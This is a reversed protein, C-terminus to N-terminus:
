RGGPPSRRVSLFFFCFIVDGGSMQGCACLLAHIVWGCCSATSVQHDRMAREDGGSSELRKDRFRSLEVRGAEARSHGARPPNPEPGGRRMAGGHVWQLWLLAM